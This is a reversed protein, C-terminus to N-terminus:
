LPKLERKLSKPLHAFPFSNDTRIKNDGDHFNVHLTMTNPNFSILKVAFRDLTFGLDRDSLDIVPKKRKAM